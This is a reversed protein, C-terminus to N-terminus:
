NMERSACRWQLTGVVAGEHFLGSLSCIEAHLQFMHANSKPHPAPSCPHPPWSALSVRGAKEGGLLKGPSSCNGAQLPFQEQGNSSKLGIQSGLVWTSYRVGQWAPQVFRTTWSARSLLWTPRAESPERQRGPARRGERDKHM